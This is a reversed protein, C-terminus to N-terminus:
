NPRFKYINSQIIRSMHVYYSVFFFHLFHLSFEQNNLITKAQVRIYMFKIEYTKNM